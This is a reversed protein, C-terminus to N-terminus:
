LNGTSTTLDLSALRTAKTEWSFIGVFGTNYFSCVTYVQLVTKIKWYDNWANPITSDPDSLIQIWLWPLTFAWRDASSRVLQQWVQPLPYTWVIIRVSDGLLINIRSKGGDMMSVDTHFHGWWDAPNPPITYLLFILLAHLQPNWYDDTKIEVPLQVM